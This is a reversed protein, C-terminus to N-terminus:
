PDTSVMQISGKEQGLTLLLLVRPLFSIKPWNLSSASQHFPTSPPTPPPEFSHLFSNLAPFGGFYGCPMSVVSCIWNISEITVMRVNTAEYQPDAFHGGSFSVLERQGTFVSHMTYSNCLQFSIWKMACSYVWSSDMCQSAVENCLICLCSHNAQYTHVRGRAASIYANYVHMLLSIFVHM